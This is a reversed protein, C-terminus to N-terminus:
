KKDRGDNGREFKVESDKIGCNLCKIDKIKVPGLNPTEIRWIKNYYDILANFSMLEVNIFIQFNTRNRCKPCKLEIGLESDLFLPIKEFGKGINESKQFAETKLIGKRM